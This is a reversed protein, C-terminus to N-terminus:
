PRHSQSRRYEPGLRHHWARPPAFTMSNACRAFSIQLSLAATDPRGKVLDRGIRCRRQIFGALGEPREIDPQVPILQFFRPNVREALGQPSANKVVAREAPALHHQALGQRLPPQMGQARGGHFGPDPGIHQLM